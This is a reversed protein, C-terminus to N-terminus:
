SRSASKCKVADHCDNHATPFKHEPGLRYDVDVCVMGYKNTMLRCLLQENELGGICWGGGHFMVYLPSGGSPAKEPQYIRCTISAGDRMPVQVDHEKVGDIKPGLQDSMAQKADSIWKRM